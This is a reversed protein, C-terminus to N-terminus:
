RLFGARLLSIGEGSEIQLVTATDPVLLQAPIAAEFHGNKSIGLRRGNVSFAVEQETASVFDVSLRWGEQVPVRFRLRALPETRRKEGDFAALNIGGAFHALSDGEKMDIFPKLGRPDPGTDARRARDPAYSNPFTVCSSLLLMTTLFVRLM